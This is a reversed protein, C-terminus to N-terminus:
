RRAWTSRIEPTDYPGMRRDPLRAPSTQDSNRNASLWLVFAILALLLIVGVAIRIIAGVNLGGSPKPDPTKTVAASPKTLGSPSANPKPSASPQFLSQSPSPRPTDINILVDLNSQPNAAPSSSPRLTGINIVVDSNTQRNVVPIAHATSVLFLLLFRVNTRYLVM